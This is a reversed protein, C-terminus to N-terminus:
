IKILRLPNIHKSNKTAQFILKENIKGVVYGKKIKSGVRITPAIKSLGAYVTHIKRSHLVVVVNGLMSSKGSFVVKGNLVNKVKANKKNSKLTISENFIKIKYIPDVYTGFKKIIKADALPSITKNGRYAYTKSKQYSSNVQRVKESEKYIKKEEVEAEKAALRAEEKEEKTTAKRLAEKAKRAKARALSKAERVKRQREKELRMAKKRAAARKRSEEVEQTHLINLKALTARLSNQKDEIKVLKANYKEEDISLTKRLKEKALKKQAYSKRKKIINEIETRRNNHLKEKRKKSKKLAVIDSKLTGLIIANQKKYASYVEYSLVSQQTPEYSHEMAFVISFQESLLSIFTKAKVKLENATELLEEESKKLEVKLIEYQKQTKEQDKELDAIKKELYVVDKEASKIDKAIKGLKRSAKKKASSTVSLNKKSSKIKSTTSSGYLLGIAVLCLVIFYKV